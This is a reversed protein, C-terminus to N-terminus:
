SRGAAARSAVEFAQRDRLYDAADFPTDTLVLCVADASFSDLCVWTMPPVYLGRNPNTFAFSASGSADSVEVRFTGAAAVLLQRSSRHAHGGRSAAGRVRHLFFVRRIEFPVEAGAQLATLIGRDDEVTTLEIWRAETLSMRRRSPNPATHVVSERPAACGPM